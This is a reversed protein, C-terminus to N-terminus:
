KGHDVLITKITYICRFINTNNLKNVIEFSPSISYFLISLLIALLLIGNILGFSFGVISQVLKNKIYNEYRFMIINILTKFLFYFITISFFYVIPKTYISLGIYPIFLIILKIFAVKTIIISFVLSIFKNIQLNAGSYKGLLGFSIIIILLILDLINM